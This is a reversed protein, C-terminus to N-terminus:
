YVKGPKKQYIQLTLFHHFASINNSTTLKEFFFDPPGTCAPATSCLFGMLFLMKGPCSVWFYYVPVSQLQWFVSQCHTFIRKMKIFSIRQDESDMTAPLTRPASMLRQILIEFCTSRLTGGCQLWHPENTSCRPINIDKHQKQKKWVDPPGFFLIYLFYFPFDSLSFQSDVLLCDCDM